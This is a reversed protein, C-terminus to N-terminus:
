RETESEDVTLGRRAIEAKITAERSSSDDPHAELREDSTDTKELADLLEADSWESIPRGTWETSM